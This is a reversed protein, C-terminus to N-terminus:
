PNPLPSLSLFEAICMQKCIRSGYLCWLCTPTLSAPVTNKDQAAPHVRTTISTCVQIFQLNYQNKALQAAHTALPVLWSYLHYVSGGKIMTVAKAFSWLNSIINQSAVKIAEAWQIAQWSCMYIYDCSKTNEYLWLKRYKWTELWCSVQYM